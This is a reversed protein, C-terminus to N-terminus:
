PTEYRLVSSKFDSFVLTLKVCSKAPLPAGGVPAMSDMSVDTAGMPLAGYAVPGRFGTPFSATSLAWYTVGGTVPGPGLPTKAAEDTVYYGLADVDDVWNVTPAGSGDTSLDVVHEGEMGSCDTPEGSDRAITWRVGSAELGPSRLLLTSEGRDAVGDADDDVLLMETPFSRNLFGPGVPFPFPPWYSTDGAIVVDLQSTLIDTVTEVVTAGYGTSTAKLPVEIPIITTPDYRKNVMDLNPHDVTLVYDGDLKLTPAKAVTFRM